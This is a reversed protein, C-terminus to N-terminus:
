VTPYEGDVVMRLYLHVIHMANLLQRKYEHMRKIQVDFLSSPDVSVGTMRTIFGALERKNAAKAEAFQQQFEGSEAEKELQRIKTLDLIWDNGIFRSILASLQPNAYFLWRRHTVGNTKNNFREPWLAFFDPLVEKKLLESHL